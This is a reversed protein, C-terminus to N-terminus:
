KVFTFEEVQLTVAGYFRGKHDYVGIGHFTGSVRVTFGQNNVLTVEMGANLLSQIMTIM